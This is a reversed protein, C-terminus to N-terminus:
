YGGSMLDAWCKPGIGREKSEKVTLTKNCILCCVTTQGIAQIEEVTLKKGVLKLGQKGLYEKSYKEKIEDYTVEGAVTFGKKTKYVEIIRDNDDKHHYFGLPVEVIEDKKPHALVKGDQTGYIRGVVVKKVGSKSTVDVENGEIILEPSGSILWEGGVKKWRIKQSPPANSDNLEKLLGILNSAEEFSIDEDKNVAVLATKHPEIKESLEKAKEDDLTPAIKVFDNYLSKIYNLQKESAM